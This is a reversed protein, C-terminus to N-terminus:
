KKIRVKMKNLCKRCRLVLNELEYNCISEDKRIICLSNEKDDGCNDCKYGREVALKLRLKEKKWQFANKAKEEPSKEPRPPAKYNGNLVDIITQATIIQKNTAFKSKLVFDAQIKYGQLSSFNKYKTLTEWPHGQLIYHEFREITHLAILEEKKTALEALSEFFAPDGNAISELVDLENFDIILGINWNYTYNGFYFTFGNIDINIVYSM